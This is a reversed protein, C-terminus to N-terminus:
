IKIDHIIKYTGALGSESIGIVPHDLAVASPYPAGKVLDYAAALKDESIGLFLTTHYKFEMDFKHPPIGFRDQLMATLRNHVDSIKENDKFTLWVISGERAISDSEITLPSLTKCFNLIANIVEPYSKDALEFSIKLSIHLPLNVVTDTIGLREETERKIRKLEPLQDEINMGTWVFM